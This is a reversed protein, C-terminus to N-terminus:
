FLFGLEEKFHSASLMLGYFDAPQLFCTAIVQSLNGEMWHVLETREAGKIKGYIM